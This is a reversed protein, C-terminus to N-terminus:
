NEYTETIYMGNCKIYPKYINDDSSYSVYGDCIITSDNPDVLEGILNYEQLDGLTITTDYKKDFSYNKAAEKLKNELKLYEKPIELKTPEIDENSEEQVDQIAPEEYYINKGIKANVYIAVVVLIFLFIGIFVLTEQLGFGKNNM